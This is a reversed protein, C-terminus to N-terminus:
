QDGDDAQASHHQGGNTRVMHLHRASTANRLGRQEAVTFLGFGQEINYYDEHSWAAKMVGSVSHRPGLLLHGTEHAMVQALVLAVDFKRSVMVDRIHDYFVVATDVRRDPSNVLAKGFCNQGARARRTQSKSLVHIVVASPDIAIRGNEITPRVWRADVGAKSFVRIYHNEAKALVQPPVGAHDVLVVTLEHERASAACVWLLASM